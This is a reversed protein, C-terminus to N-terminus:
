DPQATARTTNVGTGSPESFPKQRGLIRWTDEEGIGVCTAKAKLKFSAQKGSRGLILLSYKSTLPFAAGPFVRSANPPIEAEGRGGQLPRKWRGCTQQKQTNRCRLSRTRIGASLTSLQM